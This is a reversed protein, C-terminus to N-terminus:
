AALMAIRQRCERRAKVIGLGRGRATQKRAHEVVAAVEDIFHQCQGLPLGLLELRLRHLTCTAVQQILQDLGGQLLLAIDLGAVMLVEIGEHGFVKGRRMSRLRGSEDICRRNMNLDDRRPM